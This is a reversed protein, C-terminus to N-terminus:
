SGTKLKELSSRALFAEHSEPYDKNLKEWTTTAKVVDGRGQYIAGLNYMAVTNDSDYSLVKKMISEAQDFEQNNYHIVGVAFQIDTRHDDLALIKQYWQMAEDTKHAMYLFHGLEKMNATDSPNEEVLQKLEELRAYFKESVNGKSPAEGSMDGLNSYVDDNPMQNQNMGAHPNKMDPVQTEENSSFAIVMILAIFFVGVYIIVPKVKM